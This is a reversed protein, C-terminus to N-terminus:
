LAPVAVEGLYADSGLNLVNDSSLWAKAHSSGASATGSNAMEVDFQYSQGETMATGPGVAGAATLDAQGQILSFYSDSYDYTGPWDTTSSVRVKFDSGIVGNSPITWNYFGLNPVSAAIMETQSTSTGEFLQLEVNESVNSSTWRITQTTGRAWNEGGNPAIVHISKTVTDAILAVDDVWVGGDGPQVVSGNSVFDFSIIIGTQGAYQDLNITQTQWGSRNGSLTLKNSWTGSQSRVNVQFTDNGSESALWDKFTLSATAYGALSIGQRQMYTNLNNDYTTRYNNGNDACFASWSGTAAKAANDGWKATTIGSNNGVVWSGPFAGEFGDSFITTSLLLRQELPEFMPVFTAHQRPQSRRCPCMRRTM